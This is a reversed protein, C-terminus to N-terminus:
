VDLKIEMVPESYNLKDNMGDSFGRAFAEKNAEKYIFTKNNTWGNYSAEYGENYSFDDM